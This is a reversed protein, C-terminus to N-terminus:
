SGMSVVTPRDLREDAAAAAARRYEADDYLPAHHAHAPPPEELKMHGAYYGLGGRGVASSELLNEMKVGSSLTRQVATKINRESKMGNKPKRKRTQIADKKMALPRNVNHLKYYLGCANCVTEGHANRRWLSTTMTRCNTCTTGPRKTGAGKKQKYDPPTSAAHSPACLPAPASLAHAHAHPSALGNLLFGKYYDAGPPAGEAAMASLHAAASVQPRRSSDLSWVEQHAYANTAIAPAGYVTSPRSTAFASGFRSSFAPLSGGGPESGGGGGGADPAYEEGLVVGGGSGSSGYTPSGGAPSSWIQQQVNIDAPSTFYPSSGSYACRTYSAAGGGGGNGGDIHHHEHTYPPPPPPPKFLVEELHAYAHM